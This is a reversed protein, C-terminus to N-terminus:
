IGNITTLLIKAPLWCEEWSSVAGAKGLVAAIVSMHQDPKNLASRSAGKRGAGPVVLGGTKEMEEQRVRVSFRKPILLHPCGPLVAPGARELSAPFLLDM